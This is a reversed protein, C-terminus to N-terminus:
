FKKSKIIGPFFLITYLIKNIKNKIIKSNFANGTLYGFLIYHKIVYIRKKFNVDKMDKELIEKFYMYFGFPSQKYVKQINKTYGDSLYDGIIIAENIAYLNYKEDMKHYMRAETVFKEGNELQHKYKKRIKTKYVIIKEGEINQKFYLDFMKTKKNKENFRKGSIKGEPSIKLFVLGYLDENNQLKDINEKIIKFSTNTFYDDSDCDICIDGSMLEVADNIASMKGENQKYKYIIKIQKENIYKQVEERTNDNSGDDIIIWEVNIGYKLNNKISEYLRNLYKKRNYTATLISLKM